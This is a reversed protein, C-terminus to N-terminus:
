IQVETGESALLFTPDHDEVQNRILAEQFVHDLMDDTRSPEHHTLFAKKVGAERAAKISSDFTGHGWGHRTLYEEETYATDIVLVDCDRMFNISNARQKHPASTSITPRENGLSHPEKPWEHDGTFVFKKAGDDVRYGFNVIPHNFLCSTVELSGIHVQQAESMDVFRLACPVRDLPVPFFHRDMQLALRERIDLGSVPDRPGYITIDANPDFLPKFMPLGQIHDWHTHTIFLHIPKSERSLLQQGLPFIGTGADLIVVEDHEGRIELCTTNGGYRRTHQGPM